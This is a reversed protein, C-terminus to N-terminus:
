KSVEYKRLRFKDNPNSAIWYILQKKADAKSLGVGVTPSFKGAIKTEVIWVNNNNTKATM